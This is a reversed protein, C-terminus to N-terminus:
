LASALAIYRGAKGIMVLPLFVALPVRLVGAVFTLPDGIIPVWSFLLTWVGYRRFRDSASAISAASFPFLRHGEFHRAFRGLWWNCSSGAVNGVTAAAVLGATSAVGANIEAMLVIESSLPLLTAAGFAAFLILGYPWLFEVASLM